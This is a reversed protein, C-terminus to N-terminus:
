EVQKELLRIIRNISREWSFSYTITKRANQGLFERKGKDRILQDIKVTLMGPSNRAFFLGNHDKVIYSRIYGVKTAIVPLGSSMAELTALSTTETLSPMVFLDMAQLYEEVNTVFGTVHCNRIEKFQAVQKEPGDGVVLLFVNRRRKLRNFAELLVEVNKEKSVRGVYGIVFQAPELGLKMKAMRKDKTPSFKNIDVGLRAVSISSTVGYDMLQQKLGYYPVLVEDCRNYLFISVKKLLWTLIKRFPKPFYKDLLEWVIIHVYFVTKKNYKHGYYMGLLGALGPGQVFVLDANKIQAKLKRVNALSPQISYYSSLKLRKSLDLYTVHHGQEVGFNPVLLSTRFKSHTRKTFEEIFKLTGDVQPYFTDAILLLKPKAQRYLAPTNTTPAM